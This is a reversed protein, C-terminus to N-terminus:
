RDGSLAPKPDYYISERAIKGAHLEIVSAGRVRYPGGGDRRLGSWVWEIAAFSGGDFIRIDSFAIGPLSFLREFYVRLRAKDTIREGASIDEFVANEAYASLIKDADLEELAEKAEVLAETPM